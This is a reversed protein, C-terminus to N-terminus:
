HVEFYTIGSVIQTYPGSVRHQTDGKPSKKQLTSISNTTTKYTNGWVESCYHLYPLIMACYLTHLSQPNLIHKVKNIVSINKAIKARVFEIHPKWCLKHDLIVGLFKNEHVREIEIHDIILKIDIKNKCNGFVMCKTKNLNLSLKNRDFWLKVKNMESSLVKM